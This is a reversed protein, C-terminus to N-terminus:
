RKGRLYSNINLKEIQSFLVILSAGALVITMLPPIPNIGMYGFQYYSFVVAIINALLLYFAVEAALMKKITGVTAGCILHVAYNRLNQKIKLSMSLTISLLTLLFVVVGMILFMIFFRKGEAHLIDLRSVHAGEVMWPDLRCERCIQNLYLQLEDTNLDPSMVAGITKVHYFRYLYDPIPAGLPPHKFELSPIVMYRDLYCINGHFFVYSDKAFFGVVQASSQLGLFDIHIRDGLSYLGEYESGLILPIPQGESFDYEAPLFGRGSQIQPKFTTFVLESFQMGKLATYYNGNILVPKMFGTSGDEYGAIFKDPGNYNQFYINQKEYDLYKFHPNNVLREHFEMFRELGDSQSRFFKNLSNNILFPDYIQHIKQSEYKSSFDMLLGNIRDFGLTGLATFVLGVSALLVIIVALVPNQQINSILEDRIM